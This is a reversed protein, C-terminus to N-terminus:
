FETATRHWRHLARQLSRSVQDMRVDGFFCKLFGVHACSLLTRQAIEPSIWLSEHNMQMDNEVVELAKHNTLLFAEIRWTNQNVLVDEIHGIMHHGSTNVLFGPLERLSRGIPPIDLSPSKVDALSHVWVTDRGLRVIKDSTVYREDAHMDRFAVATIDFSFPSFYFDTVQGLYAGEEQTIVLMRKQRRM